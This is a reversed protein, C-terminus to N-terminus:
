FPVLDNTTPGVPEAASPSLPPTTAPPTNTEQSAANRVREEQMIRRAELTLTKVSSWSLHRLSHPSTLLPLVKRDKTNIAFLNFIGAREREGSFVVWADDASWVADYDRGESITLENQDGSPFDMLGLQIQKLLGFSYVLQKGDRRWEARCYTERGQLVCRESRSALDWLCVDWGPWFRDTTYSIVRGDPSWRPTSNRGGLTSLQASTGSLLDISFLNTKKADSGTGSGSIYVLRKGDPSFAPHDDVAPDNTLRRKASGDWRALYIEKNGDVDSVFALQEGNPSWGPYTSNGFDYILHRVRRADLDLLFLHDQGSVNASFALRGTLGYTQVITFNDAIDPPPNPTPAAPDIIGPAVPEPPVQALLPSTFLPLAFAVALVM